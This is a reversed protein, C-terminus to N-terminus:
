WPFYASTVLPAFFNRLERDTDMLDLDEGSVLVEKAARGILDKFRM